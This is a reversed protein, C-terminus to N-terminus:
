NMMQILLIININMLLSIEINEQLKKVNKMHDPQIMHLQEMIKHQQVMNPQQTIENISVRDQPDDPDYDNNLVPTTTPVGEDTEDNDNVAVPPQRRCNVKVTVTATDQLEDDDDEITYDFTAIYYDPNDTGCIRDCQTKDPIYEVVNVM